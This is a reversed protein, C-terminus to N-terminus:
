HVTLLLIKFNRNSAYPNNILGFPMDTRAFLVNRPTRQSGASLFPVLIDSGDPDPFKERHMFEALGRHGGRDLKNLYVTQFNNRMSPQMWKHSNWFTQFQSTWFEYVSKNITLFFVFSRTRRIPRFRHRRRRTCEASQRILSM